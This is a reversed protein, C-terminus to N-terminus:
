QWCDYPHSSRILHLSVRIKNPTVSCVIRLNVNDNLFYQLTPQLRKAVIVSRPYVNIRQKSGQEMPDEVLLDAPFDCRRIAELYVILHIRGTNM